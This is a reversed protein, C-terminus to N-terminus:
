AVEHKKLFEEPNSSPVRIKSTAKCTAVATAKNITKQFSIQGM